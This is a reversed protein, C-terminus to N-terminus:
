KPFFRKLTFVVLVICVAVIIASLVGQGIRENLPLKNLGFPTLFFMILFTLVSAIIVSSKEFIFPHPTHLLQKLM